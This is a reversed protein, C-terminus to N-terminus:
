RRRRTLIAYLNFAASPPDGPPVEAAVTTFSWGYALALANGAADEAATSIAADYVTANALAADPTLTFVTNGVSAAISSAVAAGGSPTLTFVAETMTAPDMAEDFTVAVTTAIAVDTAAAVPTVSSVGPPDTDAPAAPALSVGGQVWDEGSVPKTWTMTTTAGAAAEDSSGAIVGASGSNDTGNSRQSQSADVTFATNTATWVGGVFDVVLEGAASDVVLSPNGSTLSAFKAFVGAGQDRLPAAQDVGTFTSVTMFGRASGSMTCTVTQAGTLPAVQGFVYVACTTFDVSGLLTMAVGGYSPAAPIATVSRVAVGALAYRDAGTATHSLSFASSGASTDTTTTDHAVAM